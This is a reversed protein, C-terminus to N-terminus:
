YHRQMESQIIKGSSLQIYKEYKRNLKISSDDYIWKLFTLIQKKGYIYFAFIKNKRLKVKSTINLKNIVNKIDNCFLNNSTISVYHNSNNKDVFICGDGDLYGRIFHRILEENLQPMRITFTKNETLGYKKLHEVITKSTILFRKQAKAIYIKGERKFIKEKRDSLVITGYIIKSIDELIQKDKENLTIDICNRSLSGDAFVLGLYYAKFQTDIHKFYNEDITYKRSTKSQLRLEIGNKKLLRQISTRHKKYKISLEKNTLGNLYDSIILSTM